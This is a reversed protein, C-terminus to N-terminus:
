VMMYSLNRRPVMNIYYFQGEFDGCQLPFIMNVIEFCVSGNGITVRWRRSMLHDGFDFHCFTTSEYTLLTILHYWIFLGLCLFFFFIPIILPLYIITFNDFIHVFSQVTILIHIWISSSITVGLSGLSLISQNIYISWVNSSSIM